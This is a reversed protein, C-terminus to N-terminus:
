QITLLAPDYPCAGLTRGDHEMEIFTGRVIDFGNETDTKFRPCIESSSTCTEADDTHNPGAIDRTVNHDTAIVAMCPLFTLRQSTGNATLIM